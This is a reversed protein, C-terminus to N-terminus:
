MADLEEFVDKMAGPSGSGGAADDSAVRGGEASLRRYYDRQQILEKACQVLDRDLLAQLAQKEAEYDVESGCTSFDSAADVTGAYAGAAEGGAEVAATDVEEGLLDMQEQLASMVRKLAELEESVSGVNGSLTTEPQQAPEAATADPQPKAAELQPAPENAPAISTAVPAETSAAVAAVNTSVTVPENAPAISAAASTETLAAGAALDTSAQLRSQRGPSSEGPQVAPSTEIANASTEDERKSIETAGAASADPQAAAAPDPTAAAPAPCTSASSAAATVGLSELRRVQAELRASLADVQVQTSPSALRSAADDGLNAPSAAAEQALRAVWVQRVCAEACTAALAQVNVTLLKVMEQRVAELLDPPLQGVDVAAAM